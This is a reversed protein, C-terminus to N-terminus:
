PSFSTSTTSEPSSTTVTPRKTLFHRYRRNNLLKTAFQQLQLQHLDASVYGHNSQNRYRGWLGYM